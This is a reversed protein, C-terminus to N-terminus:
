EPREPPPAVAVFDEVFRRGYDDLLQNVRELRPARIILGAHHRKKVRSIIEEDAYATTDPYEQKALSLIIGAYEKRLPTIKSPAKGDAIELRAWERWLNVGSAAELVDSIYAGGVRAAIELFYFKGDMDSKIFEAHTAGRELGLARVLKKNISLLTKEDASGRELTRSIYAGGQHAVQMPPRGYQNTGAFLVKGDNVISDVHFVEGPIFRALVYYSARERLNERENMEGIARKVEEPKSVKSIGIASVDSRPKIVWPGPVRQMFEDVEEANVLPVFDPVNIGAREAHVAMSLKDRFVKAGSSSLGPLCLHERMLAATVVDFEELAVVRDIKRNRALFALLDIFLAPGADNPVAIVDDLSERPWDERLMKEKTVLIVHCGHAKCEQIFDAGKFYTALCIINLPRDATEPM